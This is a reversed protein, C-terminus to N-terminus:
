FVGEDYRRKLINYRRDFLSGKYRMADSPHNKMWFYEYEFEKFKSEFDRRNRTADAQWYLREVADYKQMAQTREFSADQGVARSIDDAQDIM